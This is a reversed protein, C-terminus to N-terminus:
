LFTRVAVLNEVDISGFKCVYRWMDYEQNDWLIDVDYM